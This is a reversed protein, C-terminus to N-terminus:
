TRPPLRRNKKYIAGRHGKHVADLDHVEGVQPWIFELYRDEGREYFRQLDWLYYDM